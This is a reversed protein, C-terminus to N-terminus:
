SASAYQTANGQLIEVMMGKLRNRADDMSYDIKKTWYYCLLRDVRDADVLEELNGIAALDDVTSIPCTVSEYESAGFTLLPRHALLVDWGVSSNCVAVVKAGSILKVTPESALIVDPEGALGALFSSVQADECKPHRRIVTKLGRSRFFQIATLIMEEFSFRSLKQVSDGPMQTPILGYDGEVALTPPAVLVDGFVTRAKKERFSRAEEIDIGQVAASDLKTAAWAWGSYGGRDVLLSGEHNTKHHIYPGDDGFRHFDVCVLPVGNLTYPEIFSPGAMGFQPVLVPDLGISRVEPLFRLSDVLRTEEYKALHRWFSPSIRLIATPKHHDIVAGRLFINTAMQAMAPDIGAFNMLREYRDLLGSLARRIASDTIRKTLQIAHDIMFVSLAVDAATATLTDNGAGITDWQNFQRDLARLSLRVDALSGASSAVHMFKRTIHPSENQPGGIFDRAFDILLHRDRGVSCTKIALRKVAADNALTLGREKLIRYYELAASLRGGKIADVILRRIELNKLAAM